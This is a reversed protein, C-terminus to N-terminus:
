RGKRDELARVSPATSQNSGVDDPLVPDNEAVAEAQLLSLDLGAPNRWPGSPTLMLAMVVTLALLSGVLIVRRGILDWFQAAARGALTPETLRRTLRAGFGTSANPVPEQSLVRFGVDVLKWDREDVQCAPCTQLHERVSSPMQGREGNEFWIKTERCRM